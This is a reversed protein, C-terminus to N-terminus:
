RRLHRNNRGLRRIRNQLPKSRLLRTQEPTAQAEPQEPAKGKETDTSKNSAGANDATRTGSTDVGTDLADQQAGTDMHVNPAYTNHELPPSNRVPSTTKDAVPLSGQTLSSVLSM